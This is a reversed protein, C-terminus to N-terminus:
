DTESLYEEIASSSFGEGKLLFKLSRTIDEGNDESGGPKRRMNRLKRASKKVFRALLSKETEADLAEKLASEAEDRDIGRACLSALLRRPSRAFRLSSQLWLRAFRSDNLLKLETLKSIVERIVAPDHKRKELKRALGASCQEARAILRLATKEAQIYATATNNENEQLSANPSSSADALAPADTSRANLWARTAHSTVTPASAQTTQNILRASLERLVTAAHERRVM